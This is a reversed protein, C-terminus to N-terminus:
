EQAFFCVLKERLEVERLNELRGARRMAYGTIEIIRAIRERASLGYCVQEGDELIQEELKSLRIELSKM